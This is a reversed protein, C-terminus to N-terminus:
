ALLAISLRDEKRERLSNELPHRLDGILTCSLLRPEAELGGGLCSIKSERSTYHRRRRGPPRRM